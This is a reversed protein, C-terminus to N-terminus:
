KYDDGLLKQEARSQKVKSQEGAAFLCGATLLQSSIVLLMIHFKVFLIIM